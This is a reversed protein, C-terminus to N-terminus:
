ISPRKICGPVPCSSARATKKRLAFDSESMKGILRASPSSIKRIRYNYWDSIYINGAADLAVDTPLDLLADTAPGGDGRYGRTGSPNITGGAITTIIGMTDIKRVRHVWTEAFYLNGSTDLELGYTTSLSAQTAPIGDDRNENGGDGAVTTIIGSTDVKRIYHGEAIFLNGRADIVIDNPYTIQAQIAPGDDGSYGRTGDGAVTTIIGATDVKRIRHNYTDAIYFNGQADITVARPYNLQANTSPGGDGSYGARGTGAIRIWTDDTNRKRVESNLHDVIYFNGASDVAVDHPNVTFRATSIMGDPDVKRIRDNIYDCIYLNGAADTELATV